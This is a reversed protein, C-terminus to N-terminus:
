QDKGTVNGQDSCLSEKRKDMLMTLHFADTGNQAHSHLVGCTIAAYNAIFPIAQELNHLLFIRSQFFFLNALDIGTNVTKFRAFQKGGQLADLWFVLLALIIQSIYRLYEPGVALFNIHIEMAVRALNRSDIRPRFERFEFVQQPAIRDAAQHQVATYGKDIRRM